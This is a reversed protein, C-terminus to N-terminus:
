LLQWHDFECSFINFHSCCNPSHKNSLLLIQWIKSWSKIFKIKLSTHHFHKSLLSQFPATSLGLQFLHLNLLMYSISHSRHDTATYTGPHLSGMLASLRKKRTPPCTWYWKLVTTSSCTWWSEALYNNLKSFEIKVFLINWFISLKRVFFFKM